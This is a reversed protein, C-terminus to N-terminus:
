FELSLQENDKNDNKIKLENVEKVFDENDRLKKIAYKFAGENYSIAKLM